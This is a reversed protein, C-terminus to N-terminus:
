AKVFDRDRHIEPILFPNTGHYFFGFSIGTGLFGVGLMRLFVEFVQALIEM